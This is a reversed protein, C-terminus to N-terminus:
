QEQSAHVRGVALAALRGPDCEGDVIAQLIKRSAKGMIDSVVDGLKLNTDELTKQIRKVERAKEETLRVRYRTLDRLERQPGSPIFSAKLLGHQLLDAIWSLTRSTRREGPFRKSINHM